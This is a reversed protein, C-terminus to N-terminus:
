EKYTDWHTEDSADQQRCLDDAFSSPTIHHNEPRSFFPVNTGDSNM